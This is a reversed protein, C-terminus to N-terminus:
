WLFRLWRFHHSPDRRCCGLDLTRDLLEFFALLVSDSFVCQTAHTNLAVVICIARILFVSQKFSKKIYAGSVARKMTRGRLAQPPHATGFFCYEFIGFIYLFRPLNFHAVRVVRPRGIFVSRIAPDNHLVLPDPIAVTPTLDHLPKMQWFTSALVVLWM